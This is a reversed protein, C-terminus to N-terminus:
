STSRGGARAPAKQTTMYAVAGVMGAWILTVSAILSLTWVTM